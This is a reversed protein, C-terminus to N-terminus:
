SEPSGMAELPMEAVNSDNEERPLAPPGNVLAAEAAADERRFLVDAAAIDLEAVRV